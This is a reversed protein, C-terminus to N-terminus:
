KALKVKTVTKKQKGYYDIPGYNITKTRKSGTKINELTVTKKKKIAQDGERYIVKAMTNKQYHKPDKEKVVTRKYRGIKM